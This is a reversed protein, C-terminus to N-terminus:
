KRIENRVNEKKRELFFFFFWKQNRFYYEKGMTFWGKKKRIKKLLEKYNKFKDKQTNLLNKYHLKTFIYNKNVLTLNFIVFFQIKFLKLWVEEIKQM